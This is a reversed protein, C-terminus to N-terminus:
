APTESLQLRVAPAESVPAKAKEATSKPAFLWGAILIAFLIFSVLIM